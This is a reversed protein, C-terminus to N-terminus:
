KQTPRLAPGMANWDVPPYPDGVPFRFRRYWDGEALVWREEFEHWKPEVPKVLKPHHFTSRIKMRVVGQQGQVEQGLITYEFVTTSGRGQAFATLSVARRFAPEHLQYTEVLDGRLRAEWYQAARARLREEPDLTVAPLRNFPRRRRPRRRPPTNRPGCRPRRVGPWSWGQM